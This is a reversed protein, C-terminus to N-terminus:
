LSLLLLGNLADVSTFQRGLTKGGTEWNGGGGGACSVNRLM